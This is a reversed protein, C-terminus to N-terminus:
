RAYCLREEPRCQSWSWNHAWVFRDMSCDPVPILAPTEIGDSWYANRQSKGPGQRHAKQFTELTRAGSKPLDLRESNVEGKRTAPRGDMWTIRHDLKRSATSLMVTLSAFNTLTSVGTLTPIRPIQQATLATM